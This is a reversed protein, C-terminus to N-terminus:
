AASREPGPEALLEEIRRELEAVLREYHEGTGPGAFGSYIRRARGDRGGLDGTGNGLPNGLRARHLVCSLPGSFEYALGVIELGRDRYRRYWGALLPAEDNCNPCWSGFINVLVVKGHFRDDDLTM